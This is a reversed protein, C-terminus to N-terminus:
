LMFYVTSLRPLTSFLFSVAKTDNIFVENKTKKNFLLTYNNSNRDELTRVVLFTSPFITLKTCFNADHLFFIYIQLSFRIM